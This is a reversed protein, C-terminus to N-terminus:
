PGTPSTQNFVIGRNNDCPGAVICVGAAGINLVNVYSTQGATVTDLDTETLTVWGASEASAVALASPDDTQQAPEALAASTMAGLALASSLVLRGM